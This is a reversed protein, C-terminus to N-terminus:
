LPVGIFVTKAELYDYLGEQGCERGMGSGKMGGFPAEPTSPLWDNVAVIGFELGEYMKIATNLSSTQVYAALGYELGNALALAQEVEDFPIVPMVPGFIEESYIAMTPDINAIVTPLYFYGREFAAPRAGGSVVEAGAARAGDVLAEVRERQRANILPGLDTAPDLGSGLKLGSSLRAATEIFQEAIRSHVFFRQPAICVQGCNRYKSSVAQAAVAEVDVDPFVFVPANGGLELNLRTVTRSAGDMLLKGVRTSGTFSIKRCRPDDLMTQGMAEPEGNIVNVVGAPIGAEVLAQAFLMLSRPTYESPRGVVTCGAGLAAAWARAANYVPFNWATITGVVGVPEHLVMLRKNAARAPIVRGYARKGEEAYWELLNAGTNWEAAAERLPKGSEESTIVALADVRARIWEAARKMIDAREYATMRSWGPLARHAADIAAAADRGDGFPLQAIVAETAPNILDWTGGGAAQVWAGDILQQFHFTSM